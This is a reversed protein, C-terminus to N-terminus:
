DYSTCSLSYVHSYVLIAAISVKCLAHMTLKTLMRTCVQLYINANPLQPGERVQFNDTSICAKPSKLKEKMDPSVTVSNPDSSKNKRKSNVNSIASSVIKNHPTQLHFLLNM